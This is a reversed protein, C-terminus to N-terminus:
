PIYYIDSIHQIHGGKKRTDPSSVIRVFTTLIRTLHNPNEKMGKKRPPCVIKPVLFIFDSATETRYILHCVSFM